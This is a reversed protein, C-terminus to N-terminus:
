GQSDYYYDRYEQPTRGTIKKFLYSFYAPTQFGVREAVEYVRVAPDQLLEIARNIRMEQICESITKGTEKKFLVSLYSANINHQEALQKATVNEHLHSAIYELVRRILHHQRRNREDRRAAAYRSMFGLVEERILAAHGCDLLRQMVGVHSEDEGAEQRGPKRALESVLGLAFARLYSVSHDLQLMDIVNGAYEVAKAADDSEELMRVIAPIFEERVRYDQFDPEDLRDEHLVQGGAILRARAMMFKVRKYALQVDRWDGYVNSIGVTVTSGYQEEMIGQIFGIQKEMKANEGATPNPHIAIVEEPWVKAAIVSPLDSLGVGVVKFFAAGRMVRSGADPGGDMFRDYGFVVIRVGTRLEPLDLLMKWSAMMGEDAAGAILEHAFRDKVADLSGSVKERLARTEAEILRLKELATRFAALKSEVEEVKIPKLVYGQAGVHIAEQVFEFENYGSIMLVQIGPHIEKARAALEIGNMGPMSVDTVLVDVAHERMLALAEEGSLATLPRAYGLSEWRVHRALGQLHMPEDDVILAQIM